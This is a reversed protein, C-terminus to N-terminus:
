FVLLISLILLVFGEFLVGTRSTTEVMVKTPDERRVAELEESDPYDRAAWKRVVFGDNIYTLGGNTRNLTMMVKRDSTFSRATLTSDKLEMAYPVLLYFHYHNEEATRAIGAIREWKKETVKDPDYVSVTLVHGITALFDAYTGDPRCMPIIPADESPYDDAKFLETGPTLDTFDIPPIASSAWQAFLLIGTAAAAFSILKVRSTRYVSSFPVYALVWLADLVLNKIFSQKHTLHIAEGFCGCDMAPNKWWLVATVATFFLMTIGGAVATVKPLVGGSIIAAGLVAEFLPILLGLIGSVTMLSFLGFFKFYEEIILSTGVPDMLKLLGSILIVSGLLCAAVRRVSRM